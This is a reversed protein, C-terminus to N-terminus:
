IRNNFPARTLHLHPSWQLIPRTMM